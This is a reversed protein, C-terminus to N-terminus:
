VEVLKDLQKSFSGKALDRKTNMFKGPFIYRNLANVFCIYFILITSSFDELLDIDQLLDAVGADDSEEFDELALLVEQHYHLVFPATVEELVDLLAFPKVLLRGLGDEFM